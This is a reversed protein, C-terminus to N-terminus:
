LSPGGQATNAAATLADVTQQPTAQGLLLAHVIDGVRAQFDPYWPMTRAPVVKSGTEFIQSLGPLDYYDPFAAVVDPDTFFGPYPAALGAADAWKEFVTFKGAQDKWGYYKALEWAALRREEDEIQGLQIVEGIQLTANEGGIPALQVNASQPGELSRISTLFYHHLVYLAANGQAMENSLKGPDDTLVSAPALGERYMNQWWEFVGVTRPDDGFIPKGAEDFAEIGENLLYTHLYEECFEKVWFAVYPAEVIGAERLKLSADYIDALTSPVKDIGADTLFQANYHLTHVASFYPVSIVDGAANVHRARASEFMDGILEDVGPLDNLKLAWGEDIFKQSNYAFNYYLDIEAGGRLRTQIAPSYGLNPIVAVDVAPNGEATWASVLNNIMDPQFDWALMDLTGTYAAHATGSMIAPFAALGIATAASGRLFSRRDVGRKTTHQNKMEFTM